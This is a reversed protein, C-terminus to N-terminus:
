DKEDQTHLKILPKVKIRYYILLFIAGGCWAGVEAFYIGTIGGVAAVTLAVGVRMILEAGGSFMTAMTFGMGQLVSVYAYLLYLVPLAASMCCLYQYATNGAAEMMEPIDSQIFLMTIPRGFLIMVVMIGVATAVSLINASKMGSRIREWRGAGFNQGMYTTIAYSYSLAAVELVGYLKGTATFGAIFSTDFGNAVSQVVMGGAAIIVNKGAIPVGLRFLERCIEVDLKMYKKSFRLEPSKWIKVACIIGSLCQAVITAAAAGAVGWKLWFVAVCDLVVNTLAAVIMAKLPTKSDGVARLVAACFNYFVVVPLGALLVRVYLEAIGKLEARVRLMKFFPSVGVQSLVTCFLAILISLLASQGITRKLGEKDGEGYKQSIKVSFGQTFGLVLGIALWNFWDVSGLAALAEMGVGRGVIATDVVTYLQQFINGFMLPLAFSVMLKMPNGQTMNINKSM